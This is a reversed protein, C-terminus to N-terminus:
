REQEQVLVPKEGSNDYLAWADVIPKYIENFNRWGTRFRRRITAEQIPHGGQRARCAVRAVALEVTSLSLFVLKVAYGQEQWRPILRAYRHGSLTTEIAVDRRSDVHDDLEAMMLRGARLAAQDPSLPSLAHALYDANIFIPCSAERPLFERAFTTKGAGNPGAIILLKMASDDYRGTPDAIRAADERADSLYTMYVDTPLPVSRLRVIRSIEDHLPHASNYQLLRLAGERRSIVYGKNELSNLGRQFVGPAKGLLGGLASMSMERGSEGALVRLIETQNETFM